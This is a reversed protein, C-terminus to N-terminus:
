RARGDVMVETIQYSFDPGNRESDGISQWYVYVSRDELGGVIEFSGLATRPPRAPITAPTRGRM